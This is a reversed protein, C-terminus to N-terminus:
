GGTFKWGHKELALTLPDALHEMQRESLAVIDGGEIDGSELLSPNASEIAASVAKSKATFTPSKKSAVKM